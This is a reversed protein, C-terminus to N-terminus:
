LGQDQTRDEVGCALIPTHDERAQWFVIRGPEVVVWAHAHLHVRFSESADGLLGSDGELQAGRHNDLIMQITATAPYFGDILTLFEIFERSRHREVM